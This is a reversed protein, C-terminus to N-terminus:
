SYLVIFIINISKEHRHSLERFYTSDLIQICFGHWCYIQQPSTSAIKIKMVMGKLPKAPHRHWQCGMVEFMGLDHNATALRVCSPLRFNM